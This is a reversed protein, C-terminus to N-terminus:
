VNSEQPGLGWGFGKLSGTCWQRGTMGLPGAAKCGNIPAGM